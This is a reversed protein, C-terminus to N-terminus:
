KINNTYPARADFWTEVKIQRFPTDTVSPPKGNQIGALVAFSLAV